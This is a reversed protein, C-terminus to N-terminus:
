CHMITCLIYRHTGMWGGMDDAGGGGLGGLSRGVNHGGEIKMVAILTSM